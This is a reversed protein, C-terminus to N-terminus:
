RNATIAKKVNNLWVQTNDEKGTFKKLKAIPVYVIPDLNPQQLQQLSLQQLPILPQQLQEAILNIPQQNIDIEPSLNQQNILKFNPNNPTEVEPNEPILNQYNVEQNDDKEEEKESEM